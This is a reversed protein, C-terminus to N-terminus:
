VVGPGCLRAPVSVYSKQSGAGTIWGMMNYIDTYNLERKYFIITVQVSYQRQLSLHYFSMTMPFLCIDTHTTNNYHGTIYRGPIDLTILAVLPSIWSTWIGCRWAEEGLLPGVGMNSLLALRMNSFLVVRLRYVEHSNITNIIPDGCSFTNTWHSFLWM